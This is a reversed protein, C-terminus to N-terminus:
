VHNTIYMKSVIERAIEESKNSGVKNILEILEEIKKNEDIRLNLLGEIDSRVDRHRLEADLLLFSKLVIDCAGKIREEVEIARNFYGISDMIEVIRRNWYNDDTGYGQRTENIYQLIKEKM